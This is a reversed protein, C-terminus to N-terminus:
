WEAVARVEAEHNIEDTRDNSVAEGRQLHELIIRQRMLKIYSGYLNKNLTASLTGAPKLEKLKDIAQDLTAQAKLYDADPKIADDTGYVYTNAKISLEMIVRFKMIGEAAVDAQEKPLSLGMRAAAAQAKLKDKLSMKEDTM